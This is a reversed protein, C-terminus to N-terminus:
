TADIRKRIEFDGLLAEVEDLTPARELLVCACQTFMGKPM